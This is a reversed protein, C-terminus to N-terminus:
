GRLKKFFAAIRSPDSEVRRSERREHPRTIRIPKGLRARKHGRDIAAQHHWRDTVEILAALLEDQTTWSGGEARWM